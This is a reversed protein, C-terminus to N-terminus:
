GWLVADLLIVVIMFGITRSVGNWEKQKKSAEKRTWEVQNDKVKDETIITTVMHRADMYFEITADDGLDMGLKMGTRAFSLIVGLSCRSTYTGM